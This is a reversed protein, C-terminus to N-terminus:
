QAKGELPYRTLRGERAEIKLDRSTLRLMLVDNSLCRTDHIDGPLYVRCEGARVRCTDRRVLRARDDGDLVRAYSGMEMEGHQVAYIVFGRGHDHPIRYRGEQEAHSLLLFGHDPDRYLEHDVPPDRLLAALWPETEPARALDELLQRTRAVTETTLPGWAARMEHIFTDLSANTTHIM